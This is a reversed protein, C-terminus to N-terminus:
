QFHIVIDKMQEKVGEMLEELWSFVTPGIESYEFGIVLYPHGHETSSSPMFFLHVSTDLLESSIEISYEAFDNPHELPEWGIITDPPLRENQYAHDFLLNILKLFDPDVSPKKM